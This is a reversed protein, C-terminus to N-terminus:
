EWRPLLPAPLPGLYAFILGGLVEPRLTSRVAPKIREVLTNGADIDVGSDRYSLHEGSPRDTKLGSARYTDCAAYTIKNRGPSPDRSGDAGSEIIKKYDCASPIGDPLSVPFDLSRM